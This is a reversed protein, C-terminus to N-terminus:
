FDKLSGLSSIFDNKQKDTFHSKHGPGKKIIWRLKSPIMVADKGFYYFSESILVYKGRLDRQMESKGHYKNRIQKGKYYINDVRNRFRNDEYYEDFTMKETARMTYIMKENGYNKVSGTGVIWDGIEATRRIVPKCCALTCYGDSPNPAFRLDHTVVYSYLKM